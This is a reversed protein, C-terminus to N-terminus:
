DIEEMEKCPEEPTGLLGDWGSRVQSGDYIIAVLKVFSLRLGFMQPADGVRCVTLLFLRFPLIKGWVTSPAAEVPLAEM